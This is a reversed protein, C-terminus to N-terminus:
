RSLTIGEAVGTRPEFQCTKHNYAGIMGWSMDIQTGNQKIDATADVTKKLEPCSHINPYSSVYTMQGVLHNDYFRGRFSFHEAWGWESSVWRSFKISVEDGATRVEAQQSGFWQAPVWDGALRNLLDRKQRDEQDVKRQLEERAIRQNEELRYEIEVILTKVESAEKADPAAALYLKLNSIADSYRGAKDLVIGLNFYAEPLWPAVVLAQQFEAAARLFGDTDKASKVAARGRILRREAEDPLALSPKLKLALGIIKERLEWDRASGPAVSRLEALSRNMTDRQIKAQNASDKPQNNGSQACACCFPMALSVALIAYRLGTKAHKM